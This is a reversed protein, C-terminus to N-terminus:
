AIKQVKKNSSLRQKAVPCLILSLAHSERTFVLQELFM